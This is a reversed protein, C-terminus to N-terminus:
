DNLEDVIGLAVPPGGENEKCPVMGKAENRSLLLNGAFIIPGKSRYNTRLVIQEPPKAMSSSSTSQRSSIVFSTLFKKFNEHDAGQFSYILQDIDGVVTVRGHEKCVLRVIEFQLASTDQFEDVV